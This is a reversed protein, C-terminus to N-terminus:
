GSTRTDNPTSNEKNNDVSRKMHNIGSSGPVQTALEDSANAVSQQSNQNPSLDILPRVKPAITNQVRSDIPSLNVSFQTLSTIDVNQDLKNAVTNSTQSNDDADNTPLTVLPQTAPTADNEKRTPQSERIQGNREQAHNSNANVSTKVGAGSNGVDEADLHLPGAHRPLLRTRCLPCLNVRFHKYVLYM